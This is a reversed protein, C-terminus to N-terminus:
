ELVLVRGWQPMLGFKTILPNWEYACPGFWLIFEWPSIHLNSRKKGHALEHSATNQAWQSTPKAELQSYTSSLCNKNYLILRMILSRGLISSYCAPCEWFWHPCSTSSTVPVGIYKDTSPYFPHDQRGFYCFDVMHVLLLRPNKQEGGPVQVVYKGITREHRQERPNFPFDWVGVNPGHSHAPESMFKHNVDVFLMIVPICRGVHFHFDHFSQHIKKTLIVIFFHSKIIIIIEGEFAVGGRDVIQPLLLFFNM